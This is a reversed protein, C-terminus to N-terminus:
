RFAAQPGNTNAEAPQPKSEPPEVKYRDFTALAADLMDVRRFLQQAAAFEPRLSALPACHIAVTDRLGQAASAIAVTADFLRLASEMAAIQHVAAERTMGNRREHAWRPYVRRRLGIERVLAARVDVLAVPKTTEEHGFQEITDTM